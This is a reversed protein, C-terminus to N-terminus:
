ISIQWFFVRFVKLLEAQQEFLEFGILGTKGRFNLSSAREIAQFGNPEPEIFQRAAPATSPSNKLAMFFASAFTM